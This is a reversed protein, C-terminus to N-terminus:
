EDGVDGYLDPQVFFRATPHRAPGNTDECATLMALVLVPGIVYVKDRKDCSSKTM